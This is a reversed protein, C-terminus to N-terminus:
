THSSRDALGCHFERLQLLRVRIALTRGAAAASALRFTAPAALMADLM